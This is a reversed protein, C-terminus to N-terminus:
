NHHIGILHKFGHTILLELEKKANHGTYKAQTQTKKWCVVIDGLVRLISKEDFPKKIQPFSLVDTSKNIKRYKNNLNAIRKEGVLYIGVEVIDDIQYKKLLGFIVKKIWVQSIKARTSNHFCIRNNSKM